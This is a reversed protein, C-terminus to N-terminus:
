TFDLESRERDSRIAIKASATAALALAQELLFRGPVVIV